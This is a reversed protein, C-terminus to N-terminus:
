TLPASLSLFHRPFADQGNTCMTIKSNKSIQDYRNSKKHSFAVIEMRLMLGEWVCRRRRDYKNLVINANDDM